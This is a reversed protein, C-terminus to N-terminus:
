LNERENKEREKKGERQASLARIAPDANMVHHDEPLEVAEPEPDGDEPVPIHGAPLVLSECMGAGERCLLGRRRQDRPVPDPVGEGLIMDVALAGCRRPGADGLCIGCTGKCASRQSEQSVRVVRCSFISAAEALTLMGEEAQSRVVLFARSYKPTAM